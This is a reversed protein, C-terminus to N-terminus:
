AFFASLNKHAQIRSRMDSIPQRGLCEWIKGWVMGDLHSLRLAWARIHDMAKREEVEKKVLLHLEHLPPLMQRLFRSTPRCGQIFKATVVQATIDFDKRFTRPFRGVFYFIPDKELVQMVFDKDRMLADPICKNLCKLKMKPSSCREAILLLIEKDDTRLPYPMPLGAKYWAITVDRNHTWLEQPRCLSGVRCEHRAMYKICNKAVEAYLSRKQDDQANLYLDSVKRYVHQSIVGVESQNRDIAALTVWSTCKEYDQVTNKPKKCDFSQRFCDFFEPDALLSMDVFSAFVNKMNMSATNCAKTMLERDSLIHPPAIEALSLLCCLHDEPKWSIIELWLRRDGRLSPLAKLADDADLFCHLEKRVFDADLKRKRPECRWLRIKGVLWDPDHHYQQQQTSQSGKTGWRRRLFGLLKKLGVGPMKLSEQVVRQILLAIIGFMAVVFVLYAM